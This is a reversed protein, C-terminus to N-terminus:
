FYTFQDFIGTASTGGPTTVTVDVTGPGEAPAYATIKTGLANVTVGTAPSNGFMVSSAAWFSIGTIIVRTVGTVPGTNPHVLTIVPQPQTITLVLTQTATQQPHTRTLHDVVKVTFTSSGSAKPIGKILGSSTLHLGAPLSGTLLSWRFWPNGNTAALTASYRVRVSGTPVSSTTVTLPGGSAFAHVQDSSAALLLGEGISPTPFHNAVSGLSFSHVANGTTPDLGYLVGTNHNITWVLGGAVIPPGGSGTSTKWLVSISAPSGSTQTAVVGSQCPAYVISGVIASGGDVNGGCYNPATALQGGVGGLTSQSLLYGTQSKGAQFVLGGSALAPVSSGLDRDSANDAYWAAPAFSAELALSSSLELVGDSNDYNDTSAAFASNGTAVWINGSADVVPAAGGMWIAGESDGPNSAVEFTQMAGGGEPAAVLWGHYPNSATECDGANGGFGVIVKGSDLALGPRQLQYLPHSGSPDVPTDLVITGTFLDLGVLHHSAGNGSTSEDDVVFVEDLAPDIV